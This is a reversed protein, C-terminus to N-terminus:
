FFFYVSFVIFYCFYCAMCCQIWYAQLKSKEEVKKELQDLLQKRYSECGDNEQDSTKKVVVEVVM